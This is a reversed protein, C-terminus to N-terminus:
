SSYPQPPKATRSMASEVKSRYGANGKMKSAECMDLQKKVNLCGTHDGCFVTSDNASGQAVSMEVHISTTGANPETQAGDGFGVDSPEQTLASKVEGFCRSM